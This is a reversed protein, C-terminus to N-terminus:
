REHGAVSDSTDIADLFKRYEADAARRQEDQWKRLADSGSHDPTFNRYAWALKLARLCGISQVRYIAYLDWFGLTM